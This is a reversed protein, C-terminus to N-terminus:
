GTGKNPPLGVRVVRAEFQGNPALAKSLLQVEPDPPTGWLLYGPGFRWIGSGVNIALIIALLLVVAKLSSKAADSTLVIM